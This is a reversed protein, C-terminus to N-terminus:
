AEESDHGLYAAGIGGGPHIQQAIAHAAEGVGTVGQPDSTPHIWGADNLASFVAHIADAYLYGGPGRIEIEYHHAPTEHSEDYDAYVKLRIGKPHHWAALIGEMEADADKQRASCFDERRNREVKADLAEVIARAIKPYDFGAKPEPFQRGRYSYASGQKPVRTTIRLRPLERISHRWSDQPIGGYSYGEFNIEANAPQGDIYLIPVRHVLNQSERWEAQRGLDRVAALLKERVEARKAEAERKLRLNRETQSEQTQM